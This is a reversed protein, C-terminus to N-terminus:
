ITWQNSVLAILRWVGNVKELVFTLSKWDMGEYKTTGPWFFDAKVASPWLHWPSLESTYRSDATGSADMSLKWKSGPEEIKFFLDLYGAKTEQVPFGSGDYFGFDHLGEDWYVSLWDMRHLAPDEPFVVGYKALVTGKDPDAYRAFTDWDKEKLAKFLIEAAEEATKAMAPLKLSPEMVVNDTGDIIFQGKFSYHDMEVNAEGAITFRASRAGPLSLLTRVLTQIRLGSGTSGQNLFFKMEPALDASLISGDLSITKIDLGTKQKMEAILPAYGAAAEENSLYLPTYTLKVTNNDDDALCMALATEPVADSILWKGDEQRTLHFLVSARKSLDFESVDSLRVEAKGSSDSLLQSECSPLGQYDAITSDTFAIGYYNGNRSSYITFVDPQKYTKDIMLNALDPEIDNYRDYLWARCTDVPDNFDFEETGISRLHVLSFGASSEAYRHIRIVHGPEQIREFRGDGDEDHLTVIGTDIAYPEFRVPNLGEGPSYRYIAWQNDGIQMGTFGIAVDKHPYDSFQALLLTSVSPGSFMDTKGDPDAIQRRLIEAGTDSKGVRLWLAGDERRIVHVSEPLGDEDLDAEASAVVTEGEKLDGPPPIAILLPEPVPNQTEAGTTDAPIQTEDSSSSPESQSESASAPVSAPESTPLTTQSTVPVSTPEQNFVTCGSLIFAPFLCLLFIVALNALIEKPLRTKVYEISVGPMTKSRFGQKFASSQWKM